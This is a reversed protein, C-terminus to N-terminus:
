PTLNPFRVFEYVLQPMQMQAHHVLNSVGVKVSYQVGLEPSVYSYADSIPVFSSVSSSYINSKSASAIDIRLRKASSLKFLSSCSTQFGVDAKRPTSLLVWYIRRLRRLWCIQLWCGDAHVVSALFPCSGALGRLFFVSFGCVTSQPHGPPLLAFSSADVVRLGEVGIVRARSDVVAM